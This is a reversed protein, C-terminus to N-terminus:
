IRIGLTSSRALCWCLWRILRRNMKTSTRVIAGVAIVRPLRTEPRTWWGALRAQHIMFHSISFTSANVVSWVTNSTSAVCLTSSGAKRTSTAHAFQTQHAQTLHVCSTTAILEPHRAMLEQSPYRATKDCMGRRQMIGDGIVVPVRQLLLVVRRGGCLKEEVPVM